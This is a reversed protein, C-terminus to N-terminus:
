PKGPQEWRYRYGLGPAASLKLEGSQRLSTDDIRVDAHPRVLFWGVGALGIVMSAAYAQVRGTQLARLVTGAAGVIAASLRALIGDVIWKDAMVFIDALADVMGVVAADYLEDIRWKDYILKYLRPFSEAFTREPAGGRLFYAYYAGGAGGIFALLGPVMMALA